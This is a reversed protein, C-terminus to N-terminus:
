KPPIYWSNQDRKGRERLLLLVKKHEQLKKPRPTISRGNVSTAMNTLFTSFLREHSLNRTTLNQNVKWLKNLVAAYIYLLKLLLVMINHILTYIVTM